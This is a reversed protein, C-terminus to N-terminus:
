DADSETLSHEPTVPSESARRRRAERRALKEQAKLKKDMERKKKLFTNTNKAIVPEKQIVSTRTDDGTAVSKTGKAPTEIADNSRQTGDPAKAKGSPRGKRNAPQRRSSSEATRM